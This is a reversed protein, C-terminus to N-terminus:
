GFHWGGERLHHWSWFAADVLDFPKTRPFRKLGRELARHTGRVHIVQGREYDQLMRQNREVKSGYGAGAKDSEFGPMRVDEPLQDTALLQEWARYYVSLWTDGGQDTEVGVTTFGLELCKLIARRLADEPSTVQEWSFFRYIKDNEAIGDAQIGMADSQDTSTVAPDVWVCGRVLDPVDDWDCHQFEIHDWIGGPPADVEHQAEQLWASYGWTDINQQCTALDQGSWTPNGDILVFRGDQQEVEANEVAPYPGSVARDALFDAAEDAMGALRSFIGQPIILNQIALVAVDQAGAPLLSTTVIEIKKRTVKLSDHKGDIDDFIMFDPRKEKVKAGRRATDLGIADVVFGSATRLRQRRWSRPRGYKGLERKALQPYYQEISASELMDMINTVSGDAQEQTERVYWAYHRIGRAGLAVTALEASTSKGGERPWIGVFPLPRVGGKISWAWDWLEIHRQAFGGYIYNSFLTTLWDRWSIPPM